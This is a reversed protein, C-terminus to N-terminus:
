VVDFWDVNLCSVKEAKSKELVEDVSAITSVLLERIRMSDKQGIAM